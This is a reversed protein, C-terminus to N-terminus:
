MNLHEVHLKNTVIILVHASSEDYWNTWMEALIQGHDNRASFNLHIIGFSVMRRFVLRGIITKM